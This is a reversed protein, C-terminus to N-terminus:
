DIQRLNSRSSGNIVMFKLDSPLHVLEPVQNAVISDLEDRTATMPENWAGSPLAKNYSRIM